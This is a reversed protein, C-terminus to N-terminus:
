EIVSMKFAVYVQELYFASGPVVSTVGKGRAIADRDLIARYFIHDIGVAFPEMGAAFAWVARHCAYLGNAWGVMAETAVM